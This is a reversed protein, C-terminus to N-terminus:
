NGSEGLTRPTVFRDLRGAGPRVSRWDDTAFDIVALAGTPMKERLRERADNDGGGILLTAVDQLGPNHGVLLLTHVSAPTERVVALLTDPDAEYIRAEGIEKPPREFAEAILAFTQRTRVAPSVLARDPILHHHAMYRGILPASSRGRENLPRHHDPKGPDSWDSKAHRLLILRRM